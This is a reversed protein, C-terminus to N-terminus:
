SEKHEEVYAALAQARLPDEELFGLASNCPKCLLSRVAGTTHNHDVCLVRAQKRCIKCLGGQSEFMKEFQEVTLGYKRLYIAQKDAYNKAAWRAKAKARVADYNKEAYAKSTAIRAARNRAYSERQKKLLAEGNKERYEKDYQQRALSTM